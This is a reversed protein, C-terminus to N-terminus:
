RTPAARRSRDGAPALLHVHLRQRLGGRRVGRPHARLGGRDRGPLGRHHRHHGGPRRRRGPGHGASGPLARRHLRPADPGPDSRQRGAPAPAAPPLGGARRGHGRDDRAASGQPAPQHLPGAPHGRGPGRGAAPRRLAAPGPAPRRRGLGRGTVDAHQRWDPGARLRTTLDRGYSNVNQGLLTVEVTGAAALKEVEAVIQGFPRSIEPGRVAPVICFACNNDCGIQITVWAAWAQDRRVPLASPFADEGDPAADLIELVPRGSTTAAALLEGAHGVNHTGWVADVWPARQQILERDKQALCGGVAIQLDPGAIRSRRSTASTATCSTTPTRGSAAPTSCSWTPTTSATRGAGPRRAELIGALRESDHENM